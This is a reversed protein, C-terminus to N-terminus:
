RSSRPEPEGAHGAGLAGRDCGRRPRHRGQAVCRDAGRGARRRRAPVGAASRAPDCRDGSGAPGRRPDREDHDGRRHRPPGDAGRHGAARLDPHHGRPQRARPDAQARGPGDGRVPLRDLWRDRDRDRGPGARRGRGRGFRQVFRVPQPGPRVPQQDTRGRREVGVDRPRGPLEGVRHPEGQRPDGRRRVPAPPRAQRGAGPPLRAAGPLRGHRRPRGHRHQGEPARPRGRAQQSSRAGEPVRRERGGRGAGAPQAEPDLERRRRARHDPAPLGQDIPAIHSRGTRDPGPDAPDDARRAVGRPRDRPSRDPRRAPQATGGVALTAITISVVVVLSMRRM